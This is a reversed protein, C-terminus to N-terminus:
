NKNEIQSALLVSLGRLLDQATINNNNFRDYLEEIQQEAFTSQSQKTHPQTGRNIQRILDHITNIEKQM